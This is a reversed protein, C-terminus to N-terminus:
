YLIDSPCPLLKGAEYWDGNVAKSLERFHGKIIYANDRLYEIREKKNFCNDWVEFCDEEEIESHLSEDIIPYDQLEEAIRDAIELGATDSEHIAIWEVWGVAWHTERIIMRTVNYNKDFPGNVPTNESEDFGLANLMARFNARELPDSDRSRGCGSSFYNDWTDGMYHDPRIWRNLYEPEYNM